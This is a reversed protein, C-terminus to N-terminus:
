SRLSELVRDLLELAENFARAGKESVRYLTDGDVVIKELLGERAMRYVVTYVTITTPKFGFRRIIHKRVDYARMPGHDLLVRTVYLWLNETTLKRWLRELARTSM